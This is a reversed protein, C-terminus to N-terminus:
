DERSSLEKDIKTLHLILEKLDKQDKLKLLVSQNELHILLCEQYIDGDSDYLNESFSARM